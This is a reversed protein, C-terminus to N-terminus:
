KSRYSVFTFLPSLFSMDKYIWSVFTIKSGTLRVKRQMTGTCAHIGAMLIFGFATLPTMPNMEQIIVVM